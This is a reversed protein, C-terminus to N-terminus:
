FVYKLSVGYRLDADKKNTHKRAEVDFSVGMKNAKEITLSLKGKAIGKEKEPRILEYTGTSGNKIRAENGEYYNGLEYGYSANGELKISLKKGIYARKYGKIGIEPQISFYDNGKIEVELGEGKESFGNIMGYEANVGAYIDIKSSLSRYVTKELKSNAIVQYSDYEGKNKHTKELELSRQAEHRNYGLELRNIWRFSDEDNFNLISHVGARVSYVDEKSKDNYTPADDFDFRSVGFGISYGWKNGYNRGEHEKMYVLGQVRYDYGDVGLTDDTFTGQGYIVSYKSSDKSTNYSGALEEFAGDFAQQVNRMRTQITGYIDGRTEALTRAAERNFDPVGGEAFVEVLHANLDKLMKSDKSTGAPDM